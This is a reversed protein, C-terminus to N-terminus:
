TPLGQRSIEEGPKRLALIYGGRFARPGAGRYGPFRDTIESERWRRVYFLHRPWCGPSPFALIAAGGPALSRRVNRIAIDLKAEEVIHEVVDIMLVLDFAGELDDSAANPSTADRKLFEFSPFEGRLGPFLVDTIDIGVYRMVGAERCVRAYFGNGCGIELVAAGALRLGEDKCFTLFASRAKAYDAENEAESRGERGSGRLSAGHEGLRDRWYREADYGRAGAYKRPQLLLLQVVRTLAQLPNRALWSALEGLERM